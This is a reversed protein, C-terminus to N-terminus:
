KIQIGSFGNLAGGNTCKLYYTNTIGFKTGNGAGTTGITATNWHYDATIVGNTIGAYGYANDLFIKLVLIEVGVAPTYNTAANMPLNVIDGVTM